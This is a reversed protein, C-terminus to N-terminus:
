LLFLTHRTKIDYNSKVNPISAVKTLVNNNFIEMSVWTYWIFHTRIVDFLTKM